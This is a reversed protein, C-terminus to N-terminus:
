CARRTSSRTPAGSSSGPSTLVQYWPKGAALEKGFSSSPDYRADAALGRLDHVVLGLRREGRRRLVNDAAAAASVFVDGQRVGGKIQKAVEGHAAASARTATAPRRRSPRARLRTGHLEALSGAFLASVPEARPRSARSRSGCGSVAACCGRADARQERASVIRRDRTGRMPYRAKRTSTAREADQAREDIDREVMVSTAKVTATAKVGPALGLEQVADRTIAATLMFPGAEIEVLAMVGDVEVSRM